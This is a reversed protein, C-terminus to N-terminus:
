NHHHKIIKGEVMFLIDEGINTSLDAIRELKGTIRIVHLAREILSPDETMEDICKKLVSLQMKDVEDDRKCVERALQIDETTFAKISDKLMTTTTDSMNQISEPYTFSPYQILFLGSKAINVAHDGMREIDNNMKLIMLITRLDKARPEYQAILSTCLEDIVIEWRNAKEEDLKIVENLLSKNKSLFGRISKEIMTEVLTAYEILEKKLVSLRQKLM